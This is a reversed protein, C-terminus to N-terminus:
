IFILYCCCAAISLCNLCSKAQGAPTTHRCDQLPGADHWVVQEARRVAQVPAIKMAMAGMRVAPVLRGFHYAEVALRTVVKRAQRIMVPRVRSKRGVRDTVARGEVAFIEDGEYRGLQMTVALEVVLGPEPVNQRVPQRKIEGNRCRGLGSGLQDFAGDRGAGKDADGMGFPVCHGGFLRAAKGHGPRMSDFDVIM